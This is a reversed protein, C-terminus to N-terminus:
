LGHGLGIGILLVSLVVCSFFVFLYDKERYFAWASLIIRLIPILLLTLLGLAIWLSSNSTYVFAWDVNQMKLSAPSFSLHSQGNLLARWVDHHQTSGKSTEWISQVWGMLILGGSLLVGKRLLASILDEVAHKNQSM